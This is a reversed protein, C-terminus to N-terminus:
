FSKMSLDFFLEVSFFPYANLRSFSALIILGCLMSRAVVDAFVYLFKLTM